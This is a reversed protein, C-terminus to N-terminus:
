FAKMLPVKLMAGLGTHIEIFYLLLGVLLAPITTILTAWLSSRRDMALLPFLADGDQSIANSIVAAFPLWGKAYLTVFIVQPGCGPILGVLAGMIVSYIGVATMMKFATAEGAALSGGGVAFVVLQYLAYAFFVWMGVFATEMANHILTEKLSMLKVETEEHTDDGLFKKDMITLFIATFTGLIGIFSGLHKVGLNNVDIRFLLMVGLILGVSIIGWFAWFGGHTIKYGLSDPDMEGGGKHHLALDIEDGETHGIHAIVDRDCGGIGSCIFNEKTHDAKSHLEQLEAESMKKRSSRLKDGIKMYDVLYGMSVGVVLSIFSVVMFHGPLKSIMVFASDGATAILTAIVTGFTVTGKIYLPMVLIAGGCGPSIGLLAGIVPQWKKSNEITRILGGHQLFNVYNFILLVAGVFVTVQLFSQEASDLIIHIIEQIM